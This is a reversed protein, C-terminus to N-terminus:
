LPPREHMRGPAPGSATDREEGRREDNGAALLDTVIAGLLQEVPIRREDGEAVRHPRLPQEVAVSEPVAVLRRVAGLEDEDIRHLVRARREELVRTEGGRHRHRVVRAVVRRAQWEARELERVVPLVLVLDLEGRVLLAEEAVDRRIAAGHM